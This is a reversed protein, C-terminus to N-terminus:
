GRKSISLTTYSGNQLNIRLWAEPPLQLARCVFYRTVNGHCILIDISKNKQSPDARHVYTRFAAELRAGEAFFEHPEPKWTPHPPVPSCPAGERILDCSKACEAVEQPLHKLIINATETARTM